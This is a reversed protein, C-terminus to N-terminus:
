EAAAKSSRRGAVPSLFGYPWDYLAGNERYGALKVTTQETEEDQDFLVIQVDEAKIAGEYILKGLGNILSESHTEVLLRAGGGKSVAEVLMRALEAQHAPHLHLEPQEIAVLPAPARNEMTPRICSAWLIAALPLVESYGFGVDILNVFRRAKSSKVLIEAHIGTTRVSTAFGLSNRTFSAFSESETPSLSRLFMALNEGDPEVEDVALNQIRYAREASVRLPALYAVRSMFHALIIDAAELIYPSLRALAANVMSKFQDSEVDLASVKQQFLKLTSLSPLHSFMDSRSGLRVNGAVDLIKNPATNDRFLPLLKLALPLRLMEPANTHYNFRFAEPAGQYSVGANLGSQLTPLLHAKGGLFLTRELDIAEGNVTLSRAEGHEDFVWNVQHGEVQIEYASVYPVEGGALTMAIDCTPEEIAIRAQRPLRLRFKFTVSPESLQDNAADKLSGFDVYREHYWLVPSNRATEVSQRLLPFARLFTSKGSSNRGVLVTIPRIPVLPTDTLCRLNRVGFAELSV